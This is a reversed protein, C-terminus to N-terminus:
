ATQLYKGENLAHKLVAHIDVLWPGTTQLTIQAEDGPYLVIEREGDLALVVPRNPIVPMPTGPQMPQIEGIPVRVLKGPLITTLVSHQGGTRVCAGQPQRPDIMQAMGIISSIGIHAPDARTVFVQRILDPEWVARSGVYPTDIVAADVLAHDMEEGNVHVVLRKHQWCLSQREEVPQQSLHAAALGAVTGETFQPVVNNTGSSIPLLPVSGATKAALRCTGDGGLVIICDAGAQVMRAAALSTDDPLNEFPMELLQLAQQVDQRNTFDNLTRKGFGFQDPMILIHDIGSGALAVVIRKIINLKQQNDVTIANGVIRRIDKGSAPNAIIGVLSM